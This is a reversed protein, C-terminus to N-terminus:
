TTLLLGIRVVRQPAARGETLQEFAHKGDRRQCGLQGAMTEAAEIRNSPSAPACRSLGARNRVCPSRAGGHHYWDTGRDAPRQRAAGLARAEPQADCPSDRASSRQRLRPESGGNTRIR